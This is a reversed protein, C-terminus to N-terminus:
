QVETAETIAAMIQPGAGAGTDELAKLIEEDEMLFDDALAEIYLTSISEYYETLKDAVDNFSSGIVIGRATRLEWSDDYWEIKYRYFEM